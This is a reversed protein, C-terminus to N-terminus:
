YRDDEITVEERPAIVIQENKSLFAILYGIVTGILLAFTEPSLKEYYVLVGCAVIMLGTAILIWFLRKTAHVNHQSAVAVRDSSIQRREVSLERETKQTEEHMVREKEQNKELTICIPNILSEAIVKIDASHELIREISSFMDINKSNETETDSHEKIEDQTTVDDTM